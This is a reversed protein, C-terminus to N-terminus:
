GKSISGYRDVITKVVDTTSHGAVFPLIAVAGGYSRVIAAEPLNRGEAYDGGKVYVDPRLAAVLPEATDDDFVVVYDVSRLAAVIQAREDQGQIPRRDGKLRRVSADGNVGIVLVDGLAKAQELYRVHGLHLIDFCGNTFVVKKGEAKIQRRILAMQDLGVVKGGSLTM